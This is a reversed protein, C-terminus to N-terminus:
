RTGITLTGTATGYDLAVQDTYHDDVGCTPYRWREFVMIGDNQLILEM